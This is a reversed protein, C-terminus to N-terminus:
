ISQNKENKLYSVQPPTYLHSLSINMMMPLTLFINNSLYKFMDMLKIMEPISLELLHMQDMKPNIITCKVMISIAKWQLNFLYMKLIDLLMM